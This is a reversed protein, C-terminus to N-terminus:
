ARSEAQALCAAVQQWFEELAVDKVCKAAEGPLRPYICRWNCGFCDMQRAVTHLLTAGGAGEELQYPMFRGYHGGGMVCVVPAGAAAAIHAAGTENSVVLRADALIAALEGLTTRGTFDVANGPLERLLSQAAPRDGSGGVLVLGLGQAALRRGMEAFSAIPWARLDAGAAPVLVAYSKRALGVPNAPLRAGLEPARARFDAFGLGRMFDANRLLEMREASGCAILETFWGDAWRKLWAPSNTGDGASGIRQPAGSARVLSDGEAPRRSHAPQVMAGFGAARMKRIWHARYRLERAFRARDFEWVEDTLELERAWQAWVANAVLVVRSGAGRYRAALQRCADIWLVFDGIGDLRLICVSDGRAVPPAARSPTTALVVADLAIRWALGM